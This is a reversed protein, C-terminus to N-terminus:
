LLLHFSFSFVYKTIKWRTAWSSTFSTLATSSLPSSSSSISPLSMFALRETPISSVRPNSVGCSYFMSYFTFSLSSSSALTTSSLSSPPWSRCSFIPAAPAWVSEIFSRFEMTVWFMTWLLISSRYAFFPAYPPEFWPFVTNDPIFQLGVCLIMSLLLYTVYSINTARKNIQSCLCCALSLMGCAM